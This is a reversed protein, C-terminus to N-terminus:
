LTPETVIIYLEISHVEDIKNFYRHLWHQAFAKRYMLFKIGIFKYILFM